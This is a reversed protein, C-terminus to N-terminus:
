LVAKNVSRCSSAAPNSQWVLVTVWFLCTNRMHVLKQSHIELETHGNSFFSLFSASYFIHNPKFGTSRNGHYGPECHQWWRSVQPIRMLHYLFFFGQLNEVSFWSILGTGVYWVWSSHKAQIGSVVRTEARTEDVSASGADDNMVEQRTGLTGHLLPPPLSELSCRWGETHIAVFSVVGM